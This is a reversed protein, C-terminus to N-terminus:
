NTRFNIMSYKSIFGSKEITKRSALNEIACGCSPILNNKMAFERLSLIIQAGVAKGRKSPVVWVGLDCFRWDPHTRIVMGCGVLEDNQSFTYVYENQIFETLQQETEFLEKISDHQNLLLEVTSLSAKERKIGFDRKVLPKDYHRYMLGIVSYTYSNLLCNNLLQYDFSKCFIDTISLDKCIQLLFGHSNSMYRDIVYYEILVGDCNRIAYGIDNNDMQFIYYDSHSAMIEIFLEQFETLSNLYDNRLREIRDITTKSIKMKKTHLKCDIEYGCAACRGRRSKLKGKRNPKSNMRGM